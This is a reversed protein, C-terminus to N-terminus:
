GSIKWSHWKVQPIPPLIIVISFDPLLSNASNEVPKLIYTEDTLKGNELFKAEIIRKRSWGPSNRFVFAEGEVDLEVRRSNADKDKLKSELLDYYGDEANAIAASL